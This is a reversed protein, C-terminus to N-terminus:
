LYVHLARSLVLLSKASLSIVTSFSLDNVFVFYNINTTLVKFNLTIM